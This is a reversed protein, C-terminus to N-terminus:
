EILTSYESNVSFGIRRIQLYAPIGCGAPQVQYQEYPLRDGTNHILSNCPVETAEPLRLIRNRDAHFPSVTITM